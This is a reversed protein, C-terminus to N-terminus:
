LTEGPDRVERAYGLDPTDVPPQQRPNPAHQDPLTPDVRFARTGRADIAARIRQISAIAEEGQARKTLMVAGAMSALLLISIVEFALVYGGLLAAAMGQVTGPGAGVLPRFAVTERSAVASVAVVLLVVLSLGIWHALGMRSSGLERESLNLLMIVFIFLVAVAGAYVLVQMAALFHAGSWAFLAAVSCLALLLWAAGTLPNRAASVGFSGAVAMGGFVYFLIEAANM